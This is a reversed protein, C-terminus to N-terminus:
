FHPNQSPSWCIRHLESLPLFTARQGPDPSSGIQQAQLRECVEANGDCFLLDGLYVYPESLRVDHRIKLAITPKVESKYDETELYENQSWAKSSFSVLIITLVSTKIFTPM